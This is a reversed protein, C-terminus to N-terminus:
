EDPDTDFVVDGPEADSQWERLQLFENNSVYLYLHQAVLEGMDIQGDMIDEDYSDDQESDFTRPPAAPSDADEVFFTEFPAADVQLTAPTGAPGDVVVDSADMKGYARIRMRRQDVVALSVNADLSRLGQLGFRSALAKCEEDTASLAHRTAKRGLNAIAVTRSFENAPPAGM